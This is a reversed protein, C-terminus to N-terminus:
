GSLPNENNRKEPLGKYYKSPEAMVIDMWIRELGEAIKGVYATYELKRCLRLIFRWFVEM